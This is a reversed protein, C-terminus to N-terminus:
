LAADDVDASAAVQGLQLVLQGTPHGALARRRVPEVGEDVGAGLQRLVHHGRLDAAGDVQEAPDGPRRETVSPAMCPSSWKWICTAATMATRLTARVARRTMKSSRGGIVHSRVWMM